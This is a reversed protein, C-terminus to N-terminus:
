VESLMGAVKASPSRVCNMSRVYRLGFNTSVITAIGPRSIVNRPACM